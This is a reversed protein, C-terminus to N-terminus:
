SGIWTRYRQAARNLSAIADDADRGVRNVAYWDGHDLDARAMLSSLLYAADRIRELEYFNPSREVRDTVAGVV